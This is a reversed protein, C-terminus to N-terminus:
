QEDGDAETNDDAVNRRDLAHDESDVVLAANEVVEVEPDGLTNVRRQDKEADPGL